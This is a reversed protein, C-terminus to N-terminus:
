PRVGELASAAPDALMAEALSRGLAEPDDGDARARVQASGDLQGLFGSAEVSGDRSRAYCGAPISCGSGLTALFAREALLARHLDERDIAALRGLVEADDSRCELALAGQGVQPTFAEPDLRDVVEPAVGLRELAAAAAVVAVVGDVGVQALRRAMNGRLSVCELDPRLAHLLAVRRPAGTAVRAGQPLEALRAGVLVDAADLREPVAAVVLGAVAETPLDKASHVAVDARGDLVAAQVEKAFVGVGGLEAIPSALDRDGRSDLEVLEVELGAEAEALLAAVRRAQELALPSRRTALRLRGM